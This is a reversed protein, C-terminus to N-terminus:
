VNSTSTHKTASPKESSFQLKKEKSTYVTNDIQIRIKGHLSSSSSNQKTFHKLTIRFSRSLESEHGRHAFQSLYPSKIKFTKFFM